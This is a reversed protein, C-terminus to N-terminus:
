DEEYLYSMDTIKREPIQKLLDPEALLLSLLTSRRPNYNATQQLSSESSLIVLKQQARTVGTYLLPRTMIRSDQSPLVLLVEKAESGQAKHITCVYGLEARERLEHYPITYSTGDDSLVTVMVSRGQQEAEVIVGMSGNVYGLSRDNVSFIIRDGVCFKCNPDGTM